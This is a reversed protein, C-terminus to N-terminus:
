LYIVETLNSNLYVAVADLQHIELDHSAAFALTAYLTIHGLTPSYTHMYDGGWVEMFGKAVMRVKKRTIEGDSGVKESFVLHGEHVHMDPSEAVEIFIGQLRLNKYEVSIGEVWDAADVHRM